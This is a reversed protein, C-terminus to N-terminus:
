KASALSVIRRGIDVYTRFIYLFVSFLSVKIFRHLIIESAVMGLLYAALTGLPAGIIGYQKIFIYNFAVNCVANSLVLYFNVPAKGLANMTIGFQRNFPLVLGYLITINLVPISARYDEGAVLLIIPESFLIVVISTPIMIALVMGVSKEYLRKAEGLGHEKVRRAIQPFVITTITGIPIEMLNALRLAPNYIAVAAPGLLGGLMFSDISRLLMSSLNTGLTYKGYHFLRGVWRFSTRPKLSLYERGSVFTAGTAVVVAVGEWIGLSILDFPQDHTYEWLVYAFFVAKRVFTSVFTGRFNLNVSQAFNCHTMITLVFTIAIYIYILQDLQPADLLSSILAALAGLLASVVIAFLFNLVLSAQLIAAYEKEDAQSAFAQLPNYIFANRVSELVAYLAVFLTWTGFAVKDLERVLLYFSLFGFLAISIKSSFTFFGSSIWYSSGGAKIEQWIRNKM